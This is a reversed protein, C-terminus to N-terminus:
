KRGNKSLIIEYPTLNKHFKSTNFFYQINLRREGGEREKFGGKGDDPVTSYSLCMRTKLHASTPICSIKM